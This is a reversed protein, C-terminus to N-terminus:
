CCIVLVIPFMRYRNLIFSTKGFDCQVFNDNDLDQGPHDVCAVFKSSSDESNIRTTHSHAHPFEPDCVKPLCVPPFDFQIDINSMGRNAEDSSPPHVSNNVHTRLSPRWPAFFYSSTPDAPAIPPLGDSVLGSVNANLLMHKGANGVVDVTCPRRAVSEDLPDKAVFDWEDFEEIFNPSVSRM